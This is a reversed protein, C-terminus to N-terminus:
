GHQHTEQSRSDRWRELESRVNAMIAPWDGERPQRFLRMSPYWPSDTRDLMWRWDAAWKLITWTPRGLAAALHAALTDVTIVLDMDAAAAALEVITHGGAAKAAVGSKNCYAYWESNNESSQLSWFEVAECRLLERVLSFPISRSDDWAGGTWVLGVKPIARSARDCVRSTVPLRLYPTVPSADKITPRVLYPLETVEIQTDWKPEAGANAGWTTVEDVGDFYSGLEVLAPAVQVILRAARKRIAPAFRLYQIADGYGHLCRLMVRKSDVPTGDWFRNADPSARARIRDSEVWAKEWEGLLMWCQWRGGACRDADMGAQEACGFLALAEQVRRRQLLFEARHLLSGAEATPRSHRYAAGHAAM